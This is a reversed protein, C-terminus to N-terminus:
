DEGSGLGLRKAVASLARGMEELEGAHVYTQVLYKQGLISAVLQDSAGAQKLLTAASHRTEHVHWPRGSPHAVGAEGQIAHWRERDKASEIPQGDDEVWLLDWENEVVTQRAAELVDRMFPLLPLARRGASTKPRTWWARGTIHRAEWGDPTDHETPLHQLQWSLDITDGTVRGWTLGLAEGQRVGYLIAFVWRTSDPRKAVVALVDLLQDLPMADRDNAAPAPRPMDFIRQPVEHGEIRADRLMKKLVAHSHLATTTTRGADTIARTLARLDAPTLEALRRHGLTPLIWKNLTGKDTAYTRPRVQAAHMPLWAEAWARVTMRTSGVEPTDGANLRRMLERYKATAKKKDKSSVTIRERTGNKTIRGTDVRYVWVGDPRHYPTHRGAPGRPPTM